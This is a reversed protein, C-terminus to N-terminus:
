TTQPVLGKALSLFSRTVDSYRTTWIDPIHIVTHNIAYMKKAHFAYIKKVAHVGLFYSGAFVM